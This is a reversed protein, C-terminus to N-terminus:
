APCIAEALFEGGNLETGFPGAVSEGFDLLYLRRGGFAGADGKRVAEVTATHGSQNHRVRDGAKYDDKPKYAARHKRGAEAHASLEARRLWAARSQLREYAALTDPHQAGKTRELRRAIGRLGDRGAIYNCEIRAAQRKIEDATKVRRGHEDTVGERNYFAITKFEEPENQAASEVEAPQEETAVTEPAHAAEAGNYPHASQYEEFEKRMRAFNRLMRAFRPADDDIDCPEVNAFDFSAFATVHDVIAWGNETIFAFGDLLIRTCIAVVERGDNLTRKFVQGPKLWAPVGERRSERELQQLTAGRLAEPEEAKAEATPDPQEEQAAGFWERVNAVAEPDTAEWQQADKNWKCGHAKIAKRNRYTTRSDGVVAVGGAIEVLALGDAPAEGDTSGEKRDRPTPDNEPETPTLDEGDLFAEIIRDPLAKRYARVTDRGAEYMRRGADSVSHANVTMDAWMNLADCDDGHIGVQIGVGDGTGIFRALPPCLERFIDRAKEIAAPSYRRKYDCSYEVGGFLRNFQSPTYENYDEYCNFTHDDWICMLKSVQAVSPGDTWSITYYHGGRGKRATFRARPHHHKLYNLINDKEAKEREKWDKIDGLPTLIGAWKKRLEAREQAEAKAQNAERRANWREQIEAARIHRAIEEASLREGSPDYYLGIGFVDSMSRDNHAVDWTTRNHEGGIEVLQQCGRGDPESTCVYDRWNMAYEYSRVKQGIALTYGKIEVMECTNWDYRYTKLSAATTAANRTENTNNSITNM